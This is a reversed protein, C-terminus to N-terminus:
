IRDLVLVPAVRPPHCCALDSQRGGAAINFWCLYSYLLARLLDLMFKVVTLRQNKLKWFELTMDSDDIGDRLECVEVLAFNFANYFNAMTIKHTTKSTDFQIAQVLSTHRERHTDSLKEHEYGLAFCHGMALMDSESKM